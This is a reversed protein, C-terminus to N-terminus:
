ITDLERSVDDKMDQIHRKVMSLVYDKTTSVNTSANVFNKLMYNEIQQLRHMGYQKMTFLNQAPKSTTENISM